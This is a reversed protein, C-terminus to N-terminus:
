GDSACRVYVNTAKFNGYTGGSGFSVGLADGSSSSDGSSSWYFGSLTNPFLNNISPSSYNGSGCSSGDNPMSQDTCEILLKLEDKTPVRWSKSALSSGSCASYAGSTGSGNLTGSNTGGNCTNNNANCYQVTTAGYSTGSSGTGTCDNSSSNWTQGHTCKAFYMTKSTYTNGGYTGATIVLKITGDNCDTFTGWNRTVSSGSCSSTTSSSSSSSSVTFDDTSTATGSSTTVTIKGTSAGSPVSVTISTSSSESVTAQTENFKVTNDTTTSSFNTGTITVSTGESGSTPDFSSITPTSTTTETNMAILALIWLATKDDKGESKCQIIGFLMILIVLLPLLLKGKWVEMKIKISKM